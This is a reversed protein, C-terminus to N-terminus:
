SYGGGDFNASTSAGDQPSIGESNYAPGGNAPKCAGAVVPSIQTIVIGIAVLAILTAGATTSKRRLNRMFVYRQKQM